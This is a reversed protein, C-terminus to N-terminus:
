CKISRRSLTNVTLYSAVARVVVFAKHLRDRSDSSRCDVTGSAISPPKTIQDSAPLVRRM